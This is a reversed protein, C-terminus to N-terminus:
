RILASRSDQAAEEAEAEAAAELPSADVQRVPARPHVQVPTRLGAEAAEAAAVVVVAEAAEEQGLQVRQEPVNDSETQLTISRVRGRVQLKCLQAHV